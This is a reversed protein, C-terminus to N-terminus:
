QFPNKGQAAQIEIWIVFGAFLLAAVVIVVLLVTGIIKLTLMAHEEFHREQPLARRPGRYAAGRM